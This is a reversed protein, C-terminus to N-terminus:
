EEDNVINIWSSEIEFSAPSESFYDNMVMSATTENLPGQRLWAGGLGVIFAFAFAVAMAPRLAFRRTVSPEGQVRGMIRTATFPSVQLAKEAEIAAILQENRSYLSQCGSCAAAHVTMEKSLGASYDLLRLKKEFDACKM